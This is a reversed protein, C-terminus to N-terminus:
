QPWATLADEGRFISRLDNKKKDKEMNKAAEARCAQWEPDTKMSIPGPVSLELRQGRAWEALKPNSPKAVFARFASMEVFYIKGAELTGMVQTCVVHGWLNFKGGVSDKLLAQVFTHEGPSVHVILKSVPAVDGLATGDGDADIIADIIVRNSPKVFVVTAAKPDPVIAAEPVVKMRQSIKAAGGYATSAFVLTLVVVVLSHARAM